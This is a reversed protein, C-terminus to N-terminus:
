NIRRTGLMQMSMGPYFQYGAFFPIPKVKKVKNYMSDLDRQYQDKFLDIPKKYFGYYAVDWNNTANIYRLPIGSDDQWLFESKTLILNRISSFFKKHMLYSAAKVYTTHIELGELYKMFGSGDLGSNGIDQSFYYVHSLKGTTSNKFSICVGKSKVGRLKTYSEKTMAGTKSINVKEINTIENGTKALFIMLIPLTGDIEKNNFDNKMENTKFFSTQLINHLSGRILKFYQYVSDKQFRDFQPVSGVPELGVMIYNTAKPFFTYANLIDAGSFPYFLTQTTDVIGTFEKDRWEKIHKLNGSYKWWDSKIENQYRIWSTDKELKRIDNNEKQKIGALYLATWNFNSDAIVIPEDPLQTRTSTASHNTDAVVSSDSKRTETGDKTQESNEKCSSLVM